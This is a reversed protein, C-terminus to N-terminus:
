TAKFVERARGNVGVYIATVKRARGNVGVYMDTVERARGNVGVYLPLSAQSNFYSLAADFATQSYMDSYSSAVHVNEGGGEYAGTDSKMSGNSILAVLGTQANVNKQFTVDVLDGNYRIRKCSTVTVDTTYFFLAFEVWYRDTAYIYKSHCYRVDEAVTIIYGVTTNWDVNYTPYTRLEITTM